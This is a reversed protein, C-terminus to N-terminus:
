VPLCPFGTFVGGNAADALYIWLLLRDDKQLKERIAQKVPEELNVANLFIVAKYAEASFRGDALDSLLYFDYPAGMKGLPSRQKYILDYLVPDDVGFSAFARDDVLVATEARMLGTSQDGIWGEAKQLLERYEPADFWGGWMDFWWTGTRGTLVRAIGKKLLALSLEKTEPGTM